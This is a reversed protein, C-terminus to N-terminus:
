GEVSAGFLVISVGLMALITYGTVGWHARNKYAIWASIGSQIAYYFAFARSALGIIAFVDFQWTLVLGFGAILAYAGKPSLRGNTLQSFLGGGGAIDAAAASFQAALAGTILLLPLAGSVQAMITIIETESTVTPPMPVFYVLLSIYLIYIVGAIIQAHRMARIRTHAPYDAGMYRSTEFGQVTVLLGFILFLQSPTGLHVDGTLIPPSSPTQTAWISLAVFLAFIIALKVTVTVQELRELAHFGQTWGLIMLGSLVASTIVKPLYPNPNPLLDIFFAGFLNLYYTVSIIYALGLAWSAVNDMRHIISGPVANEATAINTRIAHGFLYALVCLVMMAVPAAAGFEAGLIPGIILFGSGIISALPTLTAMWLPSRTFRAFTLVAFSLLLASYIAITM